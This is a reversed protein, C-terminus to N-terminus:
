ARQTSKISVAPYAPLETNGVELRKKVFRQKGAKTKVLHQSTICTQRFGSKTQAAEQKKGRQLALVLFEQM